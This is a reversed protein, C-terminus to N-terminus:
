PQGEADDDAKSYKAIVDMLATLDIKYERAAVFGQVAQFEAAATKAFKVADQQTMEVTYYGEGRVALLISPPRTVDEMLYCGQRLSYSFDYTLSVLALGLLYRHLLLGTADTPPIDRLWKLLLSSTRVINGTVIVGGVRNSAVPNPLLGASSLGSTLKKDLDPLLERIAVPPSYQSSRMVETVDYATIESRLLAPRKFNFMRVQMTGYLLTTPALQAMPIANNDNFAQVVRDIDKRMTSGVVYSDGLRHGVDLLNVTPVKGGASITIQPVLNKFAPEKFMAESRNAQSSTSDMAVNLKGDRSRNLTYKSCKVGKEKTAYTPPFVASDGPILPALYQQYTLAEVTDDLLAKDTFEEFTFNGVPKPMNKQASKTGNNTEDM